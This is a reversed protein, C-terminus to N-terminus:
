LIELYKRGPVLEYRDCSVPGDNDCDFIFEGNESRVFVVAHLGGESGKVSAIALDPLESWDDVQDYRRSKIGLEKLVRQAEEFDIGSEGPVWNITDIAAQRAKAYPINAVMAICTVTCGQESWGEVVRITRGGVRISGNGVTEHSHSHYGHHDSDHWHHAQHSVPHHSSYGYSHSIVSPRADAWTAADTPEWANARSVSRSPSLSREQVTFHPNSSHVCKTSSSHSSTSADVRQNNKGVSLNKFEDILRKQSFSDRRQQSFQVSDARASPSSPPTEEQQHSSGGEGRRAAQSWAQYATLDYLHNRFM